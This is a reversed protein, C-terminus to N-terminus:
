EDKLEARAADPANLSLNWEASYESAYPESALLRLSGGRLLGRRWETLRPHDLGLETLVYGVRQRLVPQGFRDVYGTLRDVNLLSKARRWARFVTVAGGVESPSRLVDLLTREHDTVYIPLGQNYGVEHGFDWQGKTRFWKVPVDNVARLRHVPPPPLDVWEEPATGLPIRDKNPPRYDTVQIAKPLQDTLSHHVLATLHSFVGFPNAEQIIHEETVPVVESYPVDIVCVDGDTGRVPRLHNEASLEALVKTVDKEGPLPAAEATAIRRCEILLRWTSIVRRREGAFRRLLQSSIEKSWRM